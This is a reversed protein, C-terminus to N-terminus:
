GFVCGGLNGLVLLIVFGVMFCFFWGGADPMKNGMSM